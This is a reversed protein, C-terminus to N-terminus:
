DLPVELRKAKNHNESKNLFKNRKINQNTPSIVEM